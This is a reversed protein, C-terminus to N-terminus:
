PSVASSWHSAMRAQKGISGFMEPRAKRTLGQVMGAGPRAKPYSGLHEEPTRSDVVNVM